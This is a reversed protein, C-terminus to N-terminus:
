YPAAGIMCIKVQWIEGILYSLTNSEVGYVLLEFFSSFNVRAVLCKPGLCAEFGLSGHKM